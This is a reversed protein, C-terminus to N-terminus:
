FFVRQSACIPSPEAEPPSPQHHRARHEGPRNSGKRRDRLATCVHAPSRLRRRDRSMTSPARCSSWRLSSTVAARRRGDHVGIEGRGYFGGFLVQARDSSVVSRRLEGGPERLAAKWRLSSRASERAISSARRQLRAIGAVPAPASADNHSPGRWSRSMSRPEYRCPARSGESPASRRRQRASRKWIKRQSRKRSM